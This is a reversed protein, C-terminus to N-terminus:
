DDFLGDYNPSEKPSEEEIRRDKKFIDSLHLEAWDDVLVRSIDELNPIEVDKNEYKLLQVVFGKNPDICPRATHALDWAEELSMGYNEMLVALVLTASRSVGAKCHFLVNSENKTALREFVAVQYFYDNLPAKETDGVEICMYEIEPHPERSLNSANVIYKISLSKLLEACGASELDGLFINGSIQSPFYLSSIPVARIVDQFLFRPLKTSNEFGFVDLDLGLECVTLHLVNELHEQSGGVVLIQETLSFKNKLENKGKEDDNLPIKHHLRSETEEKQAAKFAPRSEMKNMYQSTQPKYYKDLYLGKGLTLAFTICIDALTLRNGVLFNRGDSLFRNLRKLRAIFWKGYDEGAQQLGKHTELVCYRVKLTQPFTLTADAMALWNLYDPYEKENKHVLLSSSPAYKECL